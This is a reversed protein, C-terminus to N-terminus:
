ESRDSKRAGRRWLLDAVVGKDNESLSNFWKEYTKSGEKYPYGTRPNIPIPRM